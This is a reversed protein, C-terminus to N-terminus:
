STRHVYTSKIKKKSVHIYKDSEKDKTDNMKPPNTGRKSGSLPYAHKLHVKNNNNNNNNFIHWLAIKTTKWLFFVEVM